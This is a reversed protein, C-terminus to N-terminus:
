TSVPMLEGIMAGIIFSSIVVGTIKLKSMM